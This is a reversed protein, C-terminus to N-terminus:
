LTFEKEPLHMLFSRYLLWWPKERVPPWRQLEERTCRLEVSSSFMMTSWTGPLRMEVQWGGTKGSPGTEEISERSAALTKDYELATVELQEHEKFRKATEKIVAFAEPLIEDLVVEYKEDIAEDRDDIEKYIPEKETVDVEPDEAKAKLAELTAKEEAVYDAVRKKLAASRERLQDNSLGQLEEYSHQIKEVFPTVERMDREAKNGVFKGIIKGVDM